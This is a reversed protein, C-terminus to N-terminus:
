LVLWAVAWPIPPAKGSIDKYYHVNIKYDGEPVNTCYIQQVNNIKDAYGERKVASDVSSKQVWGRRNGFWVNGTAEQTLSVYTLCQLKANGEDAWVLTVKITALNVDAILSGSTGVPKPVTFRKDEFGKLGFNGVFYTPEPRKPDSLHSLSCLLNVRGFGGRRNKGTEIQPDPDAPDPMPVAGNILLAKLLVGNHGANRYAPDRARLAQSLVAACGAVLPTAMSTGTMFCYMKDNPHTPESCDRSAASLIEKGPAVVDPKQRVEKTGACSFDCVITPDGPVAKDVPQNAANSTVDAYAQTWVSTPSECAGVTLVNKAAGETGVIGVYKTADGDNGAAFCVLTNETRLFSDFVTETPGYGPKPGTKNDHDYGWSESFIPRPLGSAMHSLSRDYIDKITGGFFRGMLKGAPPHPFVTSFLLRSGPASGRIYGANGPAALSSQQASGLASGCVHTGHGHLDKICSATVPASAPGPKHAKHLCFFKYGDPRSTFATHLDSLDDLIAVSSGRDFGSDSISITEGAGDYPLPAASYGAEALVPGAVMLVDTAFNNNLGYEPRERIVYVEPAKAIQDLKDATTEATATLTFVEVSGAELLGTSALKDVTRQIDSESLGEHFHIEIAVKDKAGAPAITSTLPEASAEEDAVAEVPVAAAGAPTPAAEGPTVSPKPAAGSADSPRSAGTHALLDGDVKVSPPYVDIYRVGRINQIDSISSTLSRKYLYVGDDIYTLVAAGTAKIENHTDQSANSLTVLIYEDAEQGGADKSEAPGEEEAAAAGTDREPVRLGSEASIASRSARLTPTGKPPLLSDGRLTLSNGHIQVEVPQPSTTM